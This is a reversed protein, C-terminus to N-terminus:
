ENTLATLVDKLVIPRAKIKPILKKVFEFDQKTDVTYRIHSLDRDNKLNFIRGILM